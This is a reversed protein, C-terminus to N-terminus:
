IIKFNIEEMINIERDWDIDNIYLFSFYLMLIAVAVFIFTVVFTLTNKFGFKLIHYIAVFFIGLWIVLFIFYVFLLFKIQFFM